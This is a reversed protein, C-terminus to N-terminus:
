TTFKNGRSIQRDDDFAQSRTDQHCILKSLKSAATLGVEEFFIATLAFPILTFSAVVLCPLSYPYEAWFPQPFVDPWRDQPRSLFGGLFSRPFVHILLILPLCDM